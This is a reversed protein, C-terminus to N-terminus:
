INFIEFQEKAFDKLLNDSGNLFGTLYEKSKPCSINEGLGFFARRAVARNEDSELYKPIFNITEYLFDIYECGKHNAFSSVINEHEHHWESFYIAKLFSFIDKRLVEKDIFVYGVGLILAFEDYNKEAIKLLHYGIDQNDFKDSIGLIEKLQYIDIRNFVHDEIAQKQIKQYM